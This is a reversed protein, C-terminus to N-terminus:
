PRIVAAEAQSTFDPCDVDQAAALVAGEVFATSASLGMVAIVLLVAGLLVKLSRFAEVADGTPTWERM